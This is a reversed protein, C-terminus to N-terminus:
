LCRGQALFRTHMRVSGRREPPEAFIADGKPNEFIGGVCDFDGAVVAADSACPQGERLGNVWLSM